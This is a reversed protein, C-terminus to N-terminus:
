RSGSVPSITVKLRLLLAGAAVAIPFVSRLPHPLRQGLDLARQFVVAHQLQRVAHMDVLPAHHLVEGQLFFLASGARLQSRRDM